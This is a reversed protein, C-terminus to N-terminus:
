RTFVLKQESSLKPQFLYGQLNFSKVDELKEIANEACYRTILGRAQKFYVMIPLLKGNKLEKFEVDIIPSKLQKRDLVKVYEDSALNLIWESKKLQQNLYTTLKERWFFYLNKHTDFEFRSGMELRYLMVRDTPKLLGYLGSLMFLHEQLYRLSEQNLSKADLGRYVEGTFAFLSQCSQKPSPKEKWKQNREWNEQALADSIHMMKKLEFSSKEKLFSHIFGAEKMFKPSSSKLAFGSSETTMLKAPSLLLKM